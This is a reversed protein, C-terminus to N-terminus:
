KRKSVHKVTCLSVEASTKNVITTSVKAPSNSISIDARMGTPPLRLRQESVLVGISRCDIEVNKRDVGVLMGERLELVAQM